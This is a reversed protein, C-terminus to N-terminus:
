NQYRQMAPRVLMPSYQEMKANVVPSPLASADLDIQLIVMGAGVAETWVLTKRGEDGWTLSCVARCGLSGLADWYDRRPRSGRRTGVVGVM